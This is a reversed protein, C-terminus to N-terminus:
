LATLTASLEAVLTEGAITLNEALLVEELSYESYILQRLDIADWVGEM